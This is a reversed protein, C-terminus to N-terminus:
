PYIKWQYIDKEGGLLSDMNKRWKLQWLDDNSRNTQADYVTQILEATDIYQRFLKEALHQDRINQLMINLRRAVYESIDFHLQEHELVQKLRYGNAVRVSIKSYRRNAVAIAKYSGASKNTMDMVLGTYINALQKKYYPDVQFDKVQVKYDKDWDYEIPDAFGSSILVIAM